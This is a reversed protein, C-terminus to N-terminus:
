FPVKHKQKFLNEVKVAVFITISPSSYRGDATSSSEMNSVAHYKTMNSTLQTMQKNICVCM